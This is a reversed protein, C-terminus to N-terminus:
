RIASGRPRSGPASADLEAFAYDPREFAFGALAALAEIEGVADIWRGLAPGCHVRWREVALALQTSWLVLAGLPAFLQNRRADLLDIRLRLAAIQRSPALGESDLARRLEALRSAQVPERELRALIQSLLSLDRGPLELASAVARVRRRLALAFGAQAALAIELPFPGADSLRWLAFALASLAPLAAAAIALGRSHLAPPAEGWRRLAEPHLGARLDAGLVALEERLELRPALERVAAQRARVVAPEAPASLWGALIAQGARTRASCLLEFLSGRGFLDLDDAYAHADSRFEEGAVGGGHWRDELRALGREYFALRREARARARLERDHWAVLGAFLAAPLALWASAIAQSYLAPWALLAGAAFVLLRLNSTRGSRRTWRAVEARSLALRRAYEAHPGATM